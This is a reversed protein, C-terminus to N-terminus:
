KVPQFWTEGGQHQLGRQGHAGSRQPETGGDDYQTCLGTSSASCAAVSSRIEASPEIEADALAVPVVLKGAEAMGGCSASGRKSSDTATIVLANPRALPERVAPFEPLEVVDTTSRRRRLLRM